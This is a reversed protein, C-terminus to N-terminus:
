QIEADVDSYVDVDSDYDISCEEVEASDGLSDDLDSDDSSYDDSSDSEDDSFMIENETLAVHTM